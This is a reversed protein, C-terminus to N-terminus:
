FVIPAGLHARRVKGEVVKTAEEILLETKCNILSTEPIRSM